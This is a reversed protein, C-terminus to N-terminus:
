RIDCCKNLTRNFSIRSYVLHLRSLSCVLHSKWVKLLLQHLVILMRKLSRISIMLNKMMMTMTVMTVSVVTRRATTTPLSQTYTRPMRMKTVNSSQDSQSVFFVVYSGRHITKPSFISFIFLFSYFDNVM